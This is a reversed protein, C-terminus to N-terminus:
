KKELVVPNCNTCSSVVRIHMDLKNDIACIKEAQVDIRDHVRMLSTKLDTQSEAVKTLALTNDKIVNLILAEHINRQEYEKQMNEQEIQKNKKVERYFAILFSGIGATALVSIIEIFNM